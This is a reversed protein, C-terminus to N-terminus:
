PQMSRTPWHGNTTFTFVGFNDLNGAFVDKELSMEAGYIFSHKGKTTSVIDRLSYFDTNSVPGALAGGVSFYGSVTLQPLSPPGQLAFSSGLDTISTTPLNVRGGAARTFTFWAELTSCALRRNIWVSRERM